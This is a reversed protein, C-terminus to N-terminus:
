TRPHPRSFSNPFGWGAPPLSLLPSSQMKAWGDSSTGPLGLDTKPDPWTKSQIGGRPSLAQTQLKTHPHTPRLTFTHIPAWHTQFLLDLYTQVESPRSTPHPSLLSGTHPTHLALLTGPLRQWLAEQLAPTLSRTELLIAPTDPLQPIGVPPTPALTPLFRDVKHGLAQTGGALTGGQGVQVEGIGM